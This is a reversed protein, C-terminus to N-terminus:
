TLVLTLSMDNTPLILCLMSATGDETTVNFALLTDSSTNGPKIYSAQFSYRQGREFLTRQSINLPTWGFVIYIIIYICSM